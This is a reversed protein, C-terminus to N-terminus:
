AGERRGKSRKVVLGAPLDAATADRDGPAPPRFESVDLPLGDLTVAEPGEVHELEPRDIPVGFWRALAAAEAKTVHATRRGLMHRLPGDLRLTSCEEAPIPQNSRDSRYHIM